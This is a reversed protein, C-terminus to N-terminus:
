GSTRASEFLRVAGLLGPRSTSISTVDALPGLQGRRIRPGNGGALHLQEFDLLEHLMRIAGVVRAHWRQEGDRKRAHEGLADDLTERRSWRLESCELHPLLSGDLTLGSGVGSGLTLTLELGKGLSCALAAVDADNAVRVDLEFTASLRRELEFGRWARALAQSRRTGPGGTRELNGGRRVVGDVVPGPFGMALREAEPLRVVLRAVEEVLRSPTMPFTTKVKVRRGVLEGDPTVIGAKLSTAGVDVCMTVPAGAETLDENVAALGGEPEDPARDGAQRGDEPRSPAASADPHM